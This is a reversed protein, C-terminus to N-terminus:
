EHGLYLLCVHVYLTQFDESKNNLVRTLYESISIEFLVSCVASNVTDDYSIHFITM